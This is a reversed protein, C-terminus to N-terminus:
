QGKLRYVANMGLCTLTNCDGCRMAVGKNENKGCLRGDAIGYKGYSDGCWCADAGQVAAFSYNSKRCYNSCASVIGFVRYGDLYSAEDFFDSAKFSFDPDDKQDTYCGM